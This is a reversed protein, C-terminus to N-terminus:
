KRPPESTQREHLAAEAEYTAATKLHVQALARLNRAKTGKHDSFRVITKAREQLEQAKNREKAAQERYWAALRVHAAPSGDREIAQQLDSPVSPAGFWTCGSLSLAFLGVLGVWIAGKTNM